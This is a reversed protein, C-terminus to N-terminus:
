KNQAKMKMACDFLKPCTLCERPIPKDEPLSALYGLYSTCRSSWKEKEPPKALPEEKRKKEQEKLLQTSIVDLKIFCHPCGYYHDVPITSVDSVVILEEIEGHCEPNPCTFLGFKPLRIESNIKSL